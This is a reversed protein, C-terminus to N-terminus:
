VLLQSYWSWLEGGYLGAVFVGSILFPGFPIKSKRTVKKAVLLTAMVVAGLVAAIYLAIFADRAGLLIGFFIGLKVDGGGIWRGDSLQFIAYFVGGGILLGAVADKVQLPGGALLAASVAVKAIALYILSYIIQDPIIYWRLDYVAIAMLGVISILWVVFGLYGAADNLRAPWQLYSTVFLGATILEVIPYQWSITKKCYRCRGRLLLWSVVPVLDAASLVHSCNPCESRESVWDRGTHLRWVLANVFSGLALGFIVLM